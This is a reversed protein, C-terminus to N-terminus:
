INEDFLSRLLNLLAAGLPKGLNSPKLRLPPLRLTYVRLVPSAREWLGGWIQSHSGWPTPGWFLFSRSGLAEGLKLTTAELTPVEPHPGEFCSLGVGLTRGLNSPQLSLPLIGLTYARLDFTQKNLHPFTQMHHSLTGKLQHIFRPRPFTSQLV